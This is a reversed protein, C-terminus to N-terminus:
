GQNRPSRPELSPPSTVPRRPAPRTPQPDGRRPAMPLADRTNRIPMSEPGMPTAPMTTISAPLSAAAIYTRAAEICADLRLDLDQSLQTLTTVEGRIAAVSDPNFDNGLFLAIDRVSLNFIDYNTQAPASAAIIAAYRERTAALRAQSRQRIAASSFSLLDQDWQLFVPEAADKMADISSRLEEAQAESSSLAESFTTYAAVADIEYDSHVLARLTDITDHARGKSLESEVHVREVWSVLDDVNLLSASDGGGFIGCATVCTLPLVVAYSRVFTRRNM